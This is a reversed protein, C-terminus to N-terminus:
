GAGFRLREPMVPCRGRGAFGRVDHDVSRDVGGDVGRFSRHGSRDLVVDILGGVTRQDRGRARQDGAAAGFVRGAGHQGAYRLGRVHAPLGEGGHQAASEGIVPLHDEVGASQTPQVPHLDDDDVAGRQAAVVASHQVGATVYRAPVGVPDVLDGVRQQM